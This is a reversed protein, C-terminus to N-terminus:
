IEIELLSRPRVRLVEERSLGIDSLLRNDLKQLQSISRRESSHRLGAAFLAKLGNWFPSSQDNRFANTLTIM